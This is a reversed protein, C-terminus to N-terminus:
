GKTEEVRQQPPAETQLPLSTMPLHLQDCCFPKRAKATAEGTGNDPHAQHNSGHFTNKTLFGKPKPFVLSLFFPAEQGLALARDDPHGLMLHSLRTAELRPRGGRCHCSNIPGM